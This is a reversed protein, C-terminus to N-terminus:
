GRTVPLGTTDELIKQNQRFNNDGRGQWALVRKGKLPRLWLKYDGGAWPLLWDLLWVMLLNELGFLVMVACGTTMGMQQEVDTEIGVVDALPIRRRRAPVFVVFWETEFCDAHIRPRPFTGVLAAVMLPFGIKAHWPTPGIWALITLSGLITVRLWIRPQPVLPVTTDM